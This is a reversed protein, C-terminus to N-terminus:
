DTIIYDIRLKIGARQPTYRQHTEVTGKSVGQIHSGVLGLPSDVPKGDARRFRARFDRIDAFREAIDKLPEAIAQHMRQGVHLPVEVRNSQRAKERLEDIYLEPFHGDKVADCLAKFAFGKTYFEAYQQGIQGKPAPLTRFQIERDLQELDCKKWNAYMQRSLPDTPEFVKFEVSQPSTKAEITHVFRGGPAFTQPVFWPIEIGWPVGHHNFERVITAALPVVRALSGAMDEDDANARNKTSVVQRMFKEDEPSISYVLKSPDKAAGALSTDINIDLYRTQVGYLDDMQLHGEEDIHGPELAKSAVFQPTPDQDYFDDYEEVPEFYEPQGSFTEYEDVPAYAQRGYM